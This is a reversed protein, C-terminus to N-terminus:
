GQLTFGIKLIVQYLAVKGDEIQGRSQVVEFWRLERVTKSAKAIASQIADEISTKSTGVIEVVEYIHDSVLLSPM